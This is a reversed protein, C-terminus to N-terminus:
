RGPAMVGNQLVHELPVTEQLEWSRDQALQSLLRQRSM